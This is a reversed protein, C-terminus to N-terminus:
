VTAIARRGFEISLAVVCKKILRLSLWIEVVRALIGFFKAETNKALDNGPTFDDILQVRDRRAALLIERM